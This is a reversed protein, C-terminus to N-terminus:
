GLRRQGFQFLANTIATVRGANGTGSRPGRPPLDTRSIVDLVPGIAGSFDTQAAAAGPGFRTAGKESVGRVFKAGTAKAIGKAYRGAGAAATVAARFNGDAATAGRQWADGAKSAGAVYDQAAGAVRRAWKEVVEGVPKVAPAVAFTIGDWPAAALWSWLAALVEYM